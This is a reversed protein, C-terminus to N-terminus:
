PEIETRGIPQEIEISLVRHTIALGVAVVWQGDGSPAVTSLKGPVTSLYYTAGPELLTTGVVPTWDTREITGGFKFENDGSALGCVTATELAAASALGVHDPSSVRLAFGIEAADDFISVVGSSERIRVTASGGDDGRSALLQWDPSRGPRRTTESTALWSSGNFTVVDLPQYTEGVRYSGRPTISRGDAGREGRQGDAGDRGRPGPTTSSAGDNGAPGREGPRGRLSADPASQVPHWLGDRGMIKYGDRNVVAGPSYNDKGSPLLKTKM